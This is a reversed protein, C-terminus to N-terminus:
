MARAWTRPLDTFASRFAPSLHRGGVAEQLSFGIVPLAEDVPRAREPLGKEDAGPVARRRPQGPGTDRPDRLRRCGKASQQGVAM